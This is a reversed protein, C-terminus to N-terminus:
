EGNLSKTCLATYGTPVDYEFIGNGSANTGASAVATTGFYGNGFNFSANLSNTWWDSFAPFYLGLTTNAPNEITFASGTGTAGSTPDGSNQWVGNKSFYIKLNDLDVAVGIIDNDTFSNGYSTETGNNIKNGLSAQYAYEYQGVGLAKSTSAGNNTTQQSTIGVYAGVGFNSGGKIEWYWKGSDFGMTAPTVCRESVGTAITLNGNTFTANQYYNDLANLTAFVNSPNDESKQITGSDSSWNNSNGSDDNLSADDKFMFWGQNGYTVSPSTKITWVGNADYQGFETPAYSQGDCYHFHSVYWNASNASGGYIRNMYERDTQGGEFIKLDTNQAPYDTQDFSTEQVGNVYLRVRDTSTAQTTDIRVVFHYWANHDRFLRNTRLQIHTGGDDNDVMRWKGDVTYQWYGRNNDNAVTNTYVQFGGSTSHPTAIKIWYSYTGIRLSSQSGKSRKISTAM